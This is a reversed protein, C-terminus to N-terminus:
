SMLCIFHHYRGAKQEKVKELPIRSESATPSSSVDREDKKREFDTPTRFLARYNPNYFTFTLIDREASTLRVKFQLDSASGNESIYFPVVFKM